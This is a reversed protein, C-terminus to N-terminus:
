IKLFSIKDPLFFKKKTKSLRQKTITSITPLNKKLKEIKFKDRDFGFTTFKKENISLLLELGVYGLGIIGVKSQKNRIKDKIKKM